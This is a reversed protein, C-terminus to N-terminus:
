VSGNRHTLMARAKGADIVSADYVWKEYGRLETLGAAQTIAAIPVGAQIHGVIWTARARQTSIPIGCDHNCDKVFDAVTKSKRVTAGPVFVHKVPDISEALLAALPEEYRALVPVMRSPTHRVKVLVGLDDLSTDRIRVDALERTRLGAGLTLSILRWANGRRMVTRQGDAWDFLRDEEACSYPEPRWAALHPRFVPGAPFQPNLRRAAAALKSAWMQSVKPTYGLGSDIFEAIVAPHLVYEIELPHGCSCHGFLALRAIVTMWRRAEDLSPPELLTVVMCVFDRVMLWQPLDLGRPQYKEIVEGVTGAPQPRQYMGVDQGDASVTRLSNVGVGLPGFAIDGLTHDHGTGLTGSRRDKRNAPGIQRTAVRGDLLNSQEGQVQPLGDARPRKTIHSGFDVKIVRNNRVHESAPGPRVAPGHSQQLDRKVAGEPRRVFAAFLEADVSLFMRTGIRLFRSEIASFAIRSNQPDFRSNQPDASRADV